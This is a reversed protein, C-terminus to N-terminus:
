ISQQCFNPTFNLLCPSALTHINPSSFSAPTLVYKLLNLAVPILPHSLCQLFDYFSKVEGIPFPFGHVIHWTPPLM